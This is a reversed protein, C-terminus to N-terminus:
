RNLIMKAIGLGLISTMLTIIAPNMGRVGEVIDWIFASASANINIDDLVSTNMDLSDLLQEENQSYQITENAGNMDTNIEDTYTANQNKFDNYNQNQNDIVANTGTKWTTVYNNIHFEIEYDAYSWTIPYNLFVRIESATVNKELPCVILNNQLECKQWTGTTVLTIEFYSKVIQIDNYDQGAEIENTLIELGNISFTAFNDQGTQFPTVFTYTSSRNNKNLYVFGQNGGLGYEHSFIGDLSLADVKDYSLILITMLAITLIKKM